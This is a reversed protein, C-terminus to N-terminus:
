GLSLLCGNFLFCNSSEVFDGRLSLNWHDFSNLNQFYHQKVLQRVAGAQGWANQAEPILNTQLVFTMLITHISSVHTNTNKQKQIQIKHINYIHTLFSIRMLAVSPCALRSSNVSSSSKGWHGNSRKPHSRHHHHRHHHHHHHHIIKLSLLKYINIEQTGCPRKQLTDSQFSFKCIATPFLELERLDTM